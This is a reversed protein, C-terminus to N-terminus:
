FSGRRQLGYTREIARAAPGGEGIDRIIVDIQGGGNPSMRASVQRAEIPASSHNTVNLVIQPAPASRGDAAAKMPTVNGPQDAMMLYQRGGSSLLEPGDENVEYLGRASVPGGYQRSGLVSDTFMGSAIQVGSSPLSASASSTAASAAGGFLSGFVGAGSGIVGQIIRAAAAEAVMRQLTQTFSRLMGSLGDEFPDFLFDALASQMNGAASRTIEDMASAWRDGRKEIEDFSDQAAVVAREYTEKDLLPVGEASLTQRLENLRRLEANLQELPTRTAQYIQAAASQQDNLRAATATAARAAEEQATALGETVQRQVMLQRTLADAAEFEAVFRAESETRGDRMLENIRTQFAIQEQLGAIRDAEAKALRAIEAAAKKAADATEGTAGALEQTVTVAPKTAENFARLEDSTKKIEGAVKNMEVAIQTAGFTDGRGVAAQRQEELIKMVNALGRIKEQADEVARLQEPQLIQVGGKLRTAEATLESLSRSAGDLSPSLKDSADKTRTLWLTALTLGTILAGIPGGMLALAGRAVGVARGLAIQAVAAANSVGAMRALALQYAIAQQTSVAMSIGASVVSSILRGALVVSLAIGAKAAIEFTTIIVNMNEDLGRVAGTGLQVLQRALGSASSGLKVYLADLASFFSASDGSLTNLQDAAVSASQGASSIREEMKAIAGTGSSLLAALAPGAEAGFLRVAQAGTFGSASIEDIIDGFDRMAGDAGYLKLGLEEAHKPLETLIARFGTGAREGNGFASTLIGLTATSTELSQNLASATPGANRFAVQLRDVNLASAGISATFVDAVRQSQDAGLRYQALTATLLETTQGLDAQASEALNLVNPLTAIQAAVNQGASALSYLAETTQKPNFRTSSAADLAAKSLKELERTTAGSVAGVNKMGQEFSSFQSLASRAILGGAVTALAGGAAAVRGALQAFSRELKANERELRQTATETKRTTGSLRDLDRTATRVSSSDARFGLEAIDM